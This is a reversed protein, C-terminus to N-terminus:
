GACQSVVFVLAAIAALGLMLGLSPPASARAPKDQPPAAEETAIRKALAEIDVALRDLAAVESAAKDMLADLSRGLDILAPPRAATPAAGRTTRDLDSILAVIRDMRRKTEDRLKRRTELRSKLDHEM